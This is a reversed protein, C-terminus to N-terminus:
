DDDGNVEQTTPKEEEHKFQSRDIKHWNEDTKPYPKALPEIQKRMKKDLPYLYKRKGSTKLVKANPDIYKRVNELNLPVHYKKLLLERVTKNHTIKGHVLYQPVAGSPIGTYIWNTAQYITGLHNQDCDAFSVVLRVLPCKQKLM